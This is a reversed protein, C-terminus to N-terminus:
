FSVKVKVRDGTFKVKMPGYTGLSLADAYQRSSAGESSAATSCGRTEVCGTRYLYALRDQAPYQEDDHNLWSTALGGATGVQIGHTEPAGTVPHPGAVDAAAASCSVVAACTVGLMQIGRM